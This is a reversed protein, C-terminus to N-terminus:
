EGAYRQVDLAEKVVYAHHWASNPRGDLPAEDREVIGGRFSDFATEFPPIWWACPVMGMAEMRQEVPMARLADLLGDVLDYGYKKARGSHEVLADFLVTRVDHTETSETARTSPTIADDHDRTM